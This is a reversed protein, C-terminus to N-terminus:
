KRLRFRVVQIVVVSFLVFNTITFVKFVIDSSMLGSPIMLILCVWVGFAWYLSIDECSRRKQIRVILPINWFPLIVAAILGIIEIM